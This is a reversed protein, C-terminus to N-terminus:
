LLKGSASQKVCSHTHAESGREWHVGGGEGRHGGTQERHRPRQERGAFLTLLVMKRSELYM